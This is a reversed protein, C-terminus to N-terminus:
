RVFGPRSNLCGGGPRHKNTHLERLHV